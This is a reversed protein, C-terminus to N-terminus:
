LDDPALTVSSGAPSANTVHRILLRDAARRLMATVVRVGASEDRARASTAAHHVAAASIALRFGFGQFAPMLLREAERLAVACLDALRLPQLEIITGAALREALSAALGWQTLAVSDVPEDIGDFRGAGIVLVGATCWSWEGENILIDEGSWLNELSSQRGARQGKDSESCSEFPQIRLADMHDILVVARNTLGTAVSTTVGPQILGRRLSDIHNTLDAGRWTMEAMEAVSIRCFPAGLHLALSKATRTKGTGAEGRIMARLGTHALHRVGLLAVPQIVTERDVALESEFMDFLVAFDQPSQPRLLSADILHPERRM